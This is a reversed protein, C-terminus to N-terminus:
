PALTGTQPPIPLPPARNRSRRLSASYPRASAAGRLRAAGRARAGARRRAWGCDVAGSNDLEAGSWANGVLFGRLNVGAPAADLLAKAFSPVYHGGYSEGSLYFPRDKYEPHVLLFGQMFAVIDASAQYDGTTYDAPTDSYSFGVGAPQEVFVVNARQSWSFLNPTLGLSGDANPFFPGLESFLGGSLSSCGPGGNTWFVLPDTSPAGASEVLWYFLNRGHSANVNVYGSFMAQDMTWGPLSLIRDDAHAAALAALVLSARAM